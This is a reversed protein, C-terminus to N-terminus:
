SYGVFLWLIWIFYNWVTLYFVRAGITKAKSSYVAWPYCGTFMLCGRLWWQCMFMWRERGGLSEKRRQFYPLWIKTTMLHSLKNWTLMHLHRALWVNRTSKLSIFYRPALKPVYPPYSGIRLRLTRVLRLGTKPVNSFNQLAVIIQTMDTQGEELGCSVVGRGSSPNENFRINSREEFIQRCFQLKM